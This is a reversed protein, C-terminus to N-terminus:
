ITWRPRRARKLGAAGGGARVRWAAARVGGARAAGGALLGPAGLRKARVGAGGCARVGASAARGDWVAHAAQVGASGWAAGGAGRRATAGGSAGQV